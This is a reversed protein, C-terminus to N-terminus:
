AAEGMGAARERSTSAPDFGRAVAMAVVDDNDFLGRWGPVRWLPVLADPDSREPALGLGALHARAGSLRAIYAEVWWTCGPAIAEVARSMSRCVHGAPGGPTDAAFALIGAHRAASEETACHGSTDGLTMM